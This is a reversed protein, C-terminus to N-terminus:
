FISTYKNIMVVCNLTVNRPWMVSKDYDDIMEM